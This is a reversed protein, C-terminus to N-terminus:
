QWKIWQHTKLLSNTWGAIGDTLKRQFVKLSVSRTLVTQLSFILTLAHSTFVCFISEGKTCNPLLSSSGLYKWKQFHSHTVDLARVEHGQIYVQNRGYGFSNHSFRQHPPEGGFGADLNSCEYNSAASSWLFKPSIILKLNPLSERSMKHCINCATRLLCNDIDM